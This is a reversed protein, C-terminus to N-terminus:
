LRRVMKCNLCSLVRQLTAQMQPLHLNPADHVPYGLIPSTTLATKLHQFAHECEETWQFATGKDSIKHLPRAIKQLVPFLDVTTHAYNLFLNSRRPM